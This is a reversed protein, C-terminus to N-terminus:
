KERKTNTTQLRLSMTTEKRPFAEISVNDGRRRGWRVSFVVVM